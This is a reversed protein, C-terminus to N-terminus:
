NLLRLTRPAQRHDHITYAKKNEKHLFLVTYRHRRRSDDISISENEVVNHGTICCVVSQASETLKIILKFAIEQEKEVVTIPRIAYAAM